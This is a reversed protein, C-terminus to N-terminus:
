GDGKGSCYRNFFFEKLYKMLDQLSEEESCNMTNIIIEPKEPTEYPDNIGTFNSIEGSRAKKYLGKVDRKECEELPTDVYVEIYSRCISRVFERSSRYPSIFSCVSIVGNKELLSAMHGVRKIHMEREERSFGTEPFISRVTDGDLREVACKKKHLYEYLRDAITSKGSSPLGTFWIVFAKEGGILKKKGEWFYEFIYYLVGKLIFEIGGAILSIDVKKTLLFVVVITVPTALLSWSLSKLIAKSKKITM